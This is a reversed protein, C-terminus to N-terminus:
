TSCFLTRIWQMLILADPADANFYRAWIAQGPPKGPEKQWALWTHLLAKSRDQAPFRQENAPLDELVIGLCDLNAKLRIAITDFVDYEATEGSLKEITFNQPVAHYKCLNALVHLDNLGEVLLLKNATM